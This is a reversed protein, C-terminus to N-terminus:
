CTQTRKISSYKIHKHRHCHLHFLTLKHTTLLNHINQHLVLQTYTCVCTAMTSLTKWTVVMIVTELVGIIGDVWNEEHSFCIDDIGKACM